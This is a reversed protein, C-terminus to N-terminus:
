LCVNLMTFYHIWFWVYTLTFGTHLLCLRLITAKKMESTRLTIYFRHFQTSIIFVNSDVKWEKPKLNLLPLTAGGCLNLSASMQAGTNRLIFGATSWCLQTELLVLTEAIGSPAQKDTVAILTWHSCHLCVSARLRVCLNNRNTKWDTMNKKNTKNKWGVVM